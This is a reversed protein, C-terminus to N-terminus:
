KNKIRSLYQKDSEEKSIECSKVGNDIMLHDDEENFLTNLVM